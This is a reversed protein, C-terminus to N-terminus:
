NINFERKKGVILSIQHDGIGIQAPTDIAVSEDLILKEERDNELEMTQVSLLGYKKGGNNILLNLQGDQPNALINQTSCKKDPLNIIIIEGNETQDISFDDIKIIAGKAKIKANAIFHIKNAYGIDIKEIRRALLIECAEKENRIGCTQAISNNNGIPIIGLAINQNDGSMMGNLVKNITKNNGVAIITKAGNNVEDRILDNINRISELYVIKGNLNLKHLLIETNNVTKTHKKLFDDYIFVNM